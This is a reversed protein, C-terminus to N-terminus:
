RPLARVVPVSVGPDTIWREWPRAEQGFCQHQAQGAGHTGFLNKRGGNPSEAPAM